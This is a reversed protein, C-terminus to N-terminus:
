RGPREDRMRAHISCCDLGLLRRLGSLLIRALGVALVIAGVLAAVEFIGPFDYFYRHM